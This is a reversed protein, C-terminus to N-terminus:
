ASLSNRYREVSGSLHARMADRAALEDGASIADAIARHENQVRDLYSRDILKDRDEESLSSRPIASTGLAELFAGFQINDAAAKATAAELKDDIDRRYVEPPANRELM